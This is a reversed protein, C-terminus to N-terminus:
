ALDRRTPCRTPSTSSRLECSRTSLETPWRPTNVCPGFVLTKLFQQHGTFTGGPQPSKIYRGLTPWEKEALVEATALGNRRVDFDIEARGKAIWEDWEPQGGYRKWDEDLGILLKKYGYKRFWPGNHAPDQLIATINYLGDIMNRVLPLVVVTYAPRWHSDSERREDANLYFFLNYTYIAQRILVHLDFAVFGPAALLRPAERKVKQALVEALEELPRQFTSADIDVAPM